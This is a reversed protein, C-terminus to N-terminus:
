APRASLAKECRPPNDVCPHRKACYYDTSCFGYLCKLVSARDKSCIYTPKEGLDLAAAEAQPPVDRVESKVNPASLSKPACSFSGDKCEDGAKCYHDTSCFGYRCILVGTRDKSCENHENKQSSADRAAIKAESASVPVKPIVPPEGMDVCAAGNDHLFCYAECPDMAICTGGATTECHIVDKGKCHYEQTQTNEWFTTSGTVSHPSGTDVPTSSTLAVLGLGALLLTTLRM